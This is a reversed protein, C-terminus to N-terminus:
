GPRDSLISLARDFDFNEIARALTVQERGLIQRLTEAHHEAWDRAGPDGHELRQQLEELIEQVSLADSDSDDSTPPADLREPAGEIEHLDTKLESLLASLAAALALLQASTASSERGNRADEILSRELTEALEQILTAGLHGAIGKLSHALRRAQQWDADDIARRIESPTEEQQSVFQGLMARYFDLKGLHRKLGLAMDLGMIARPLAPETGSPPHPRATSEGWPTDGGQPTEIWRLLTRWLQEPDIPKAIFDNMGADLCRQRDQELANATMALIPLDALEPQERIRRTAELGDMVPMQMDMLVLAFSEGGRLRELAERGHSATAVAFGAHELIERAVLRNIENDEVLLLRTGRLASSRSEREHPANSDQTEVGTREGQLANLIADFLESPTVPKHIIRKIGAHEAAESPADQGLATVMLLRPQHRVALARIAQATQLGSWGPMQQDLCVVAYSAGDQDARAVAAAAAQGDAVADVRFRLHELIRALVLRTQEHDDVVLIRQGLLDDHLRPRPEATTGRSVWATFWFTSGEGPRSEVGAEGGMLETLRKVISLGLGTGGYQRTTSSDGQEFPTFIRTQQEPTMGIGTDHVSFHLLLRQGEERLLEVRVLIEGRETFKVANNAYNILIQGLRLPDGHLWTPVQPAIEFILELGKEAAKEGILSGLNSLLGDLVFDTQELNLKGAEIKSLDLIDNIIGLLHQGSSQIRTLYGLQKTTLETKLALHALGLIANMPTRIEHSMNALFESKVRAASEALEKAERLAEATAHEQEIDVIIGLVGKLPQEPDLLRSTVRAWFRTQDQRTLRIEHSNHEGRKLRRWSEATAQPDPDDIGGCLSLSLGILAGPEYGLLEELRRNCRLIVGQRALVIGVPVSDFLTRQEGVLKELNATTSRLQTTREEVLQELQDQYRLIERTRRGVLRRLSLVWLLLLVAMGLLAATAIGLPKIWVTWDTREGLWKRDLAAREATSIAKMGHLVLARTASDGKRVAWHAAGRYLEFAKIFQRHQGRQYLYYDAPYQDLCFLKIEEAVAADLLAAYNPYTALTEIGQQELQNICADDAQVGVRFGRLDAVETIGTISRHAFIAVPLEAHVSSFDYLLERKATRYIMDIVDAEGRLLRAQAESWQIATLQVPVGTKESWLQWLDVLYGRTEGATDKFLYPPFNEDSVVRLERPAAQVTIAFLILLLPLPWRLLAPISMRGADRLLPGAHPHAHRSPAGGARTVGDRAPHPCDDLTQSPRHILRHPTRM